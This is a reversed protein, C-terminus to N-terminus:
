SLHATPTPHPPTPPNGILPFQDASAPPTPLTPRLGTHGQHQRLQSSSWCSGQGAMEAPPPQRTAASHGAAPGGGAAATGGGGVAAADGVAVMAAPLAHRHVLQGLQMGSQGLAHLCGVVVAEVQVSHLPLADRPLHPRQPQSPLRAHLRTLAPLCAPVRRLRWSAAAPTTCPGPQAPCAAQSSFSYALGSPAGTHGRVQTGGGTHGGVQTGSSKAGWGWGGWRDM